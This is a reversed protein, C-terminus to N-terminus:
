FGYDSWQQCILEYSKKDPKVPVCVPRHHDELDGFKKLTADIGMKSCVAADTLGTQEFIDPRRRAAPNLPNVGAPPFIVVDREPDVRTSIAWMVEELNFPDIDNDVVIINNVTLTIYPISYAQMIAHKGWGPFRKNIAVVATYGRGAQPLGARVFGTVRQRCQRNLTSNQQIVRMVEEESDIHGATTTVFVPKNKQTICNIKMIHTIMPEEFYGGYEAFPGETVREDLKFEGELVIESNAPVYIDNTECKVIDISRGDQFASAFKLEDEKLDVKTVSAMYVAPEAGIVVACPISSLGQAKARSLHIGIDQNTNALITITDKALVSMRYLGVNRGFKEDQTVLMGMTIYNAGDDKHWKLIPYRSLDVESGFFKKEKCSASTVVNPEAQKKSDLLKILRDIYDPISLDEPFGCARAWRNMTGFLNGVIPVDYGEVDAQFAPGKTDNLKWMINFVDEGKTIKKKLHVLENRDELHGLFSRLGDM